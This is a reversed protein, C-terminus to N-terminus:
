RDGVTGDQCKAHMCLVTAGFKVSKVHPHRETGYSKCIEFFIRIPQHGRSGRRIFQANNRLSSLGGLCAVLKQPQEKWATHDLSVSVSHLTNDFCIMLLLPLVFCVRQRQSRSSLVSPSYGLYSVVVTHRGVPVNEIVFEGDLDTTAGLLPLTKEVFVNAGILPQHSERDIVKGRISQTHSQATLGIPVALVILIFLRYMIISKQCYSELARAHWNM